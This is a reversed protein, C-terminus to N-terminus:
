QALPNEPDPCPKGDHGERLHDKVTSLASLAEVTWMNGQEKGRMTARAFDDQLKDKINCFTGM